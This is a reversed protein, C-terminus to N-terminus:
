KVSGKMLSLLLDRERKVSDLEQQLALKEQHLQDMQEAMQRTETTARLHEPMQRLYSDFLNFQVAESLAMLREVKPNRSQLLRVLGAPDVDLIAAVKARTTGHMAAVAKVLGDLDPLTTRTRKTTRKPM